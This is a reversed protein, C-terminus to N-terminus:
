ISCAASKIAFLDWSGTTSFLFASPNIFITFKQQWQNCLGHFYFYYLLLIKEDTLILFVNLSVTLANNKPPFHLKVIVINLVINVYKMVYLLVPIICITQVYLIITCVDCYEYTWIWLNLDRLAAAEATWWLSIQLSCSTYYVWQHVGPPYESAQSCM